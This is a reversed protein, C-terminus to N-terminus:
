TSNGVLLLIQIKWSKKSFLIKTLIPPDPGLLSAGSFSTLPLSSSSPWYSRRKSRHNRSSSQHRRHFFFSFFRLMRLLFSYYLFCPLLFFVLWM